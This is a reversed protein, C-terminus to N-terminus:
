VSKMINVLSSASILPMTLRIDPSTVNSVTVCSQKKLSHACELHVGPMSHLPAVCLASAWIVSNMKKVKGQSHLGICILSKTEGEFSSPNM